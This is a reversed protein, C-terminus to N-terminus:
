HARPLWSEYEARGAEATGARASRRFTRLTRVLAQQILEITELSVPDPCHDAAADQDQDSLVNHLVNHLVTM